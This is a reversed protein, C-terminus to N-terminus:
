KRIRKREEWSGDIEVDRGGERRGERGRERGGEKWERGGERVEACVERVVLAVLQCIGDCDYNLQLLM